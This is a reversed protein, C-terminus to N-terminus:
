FMWTRTFRRCNTTEFEKSTCLRDEINVDDQSKKVATPRVQELFFHMLNLFVKGSTWDSPNCTRRTGPPSVGLHTPQMKRRAFILFSPLFSGAANCCGIVTTLQGREASTIMDVSKKKKKVSLVKPPKNSTTSIGTKDMNYLRSTETIKEIVSELNQYFHSVERRNFREGECCINIRSNKADFQYSTIFINATM